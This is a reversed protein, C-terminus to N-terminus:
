GKEEKEKKLRAQGKETEISEKLLEVLDQGTKKKPKGGGANGANGKTPGPKAM